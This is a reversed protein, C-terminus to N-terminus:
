QIRKFKKELEYISMKIITPRGHPCNFPNDCYRLDDILKKVEEISLKDNAKVASKCALRAINDYKVEITSSSGFNKISDLMQVLFNKGDLKGLIYPIERIQITNDGFVEIEFGTRKFIDINDSYLVFDELPLELVLPTLTIQSVVSGKSIEERYKEFLIREHAAHQDILYM